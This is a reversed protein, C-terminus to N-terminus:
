DSYNTLEVRYTDGGAEEFNVMLAVPLGPNVCTTVTITEGDSQYITEITYGEYGAYTDTGTVEYSMSTGGYSYSWSAGVELDQGSFAGSWYPQYLVLAIPTKSVAAFFNDEIDSSTNETVSFPEGDITGSITVEPDGIEILLTGSSTEEQSVDNYEYDYEFSTNPSFNYPEWVETEGNESDGNGEDECSSLVVLAIVAMAMYVLYYKLHQKKM